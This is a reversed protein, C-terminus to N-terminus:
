RPRNLIPVSQTTCLIQSGARALFPRSCSSLSDHSGFPLDLYVPWFGDAVAPSESTVRLLRCILGGKGFNARRLHLTAGAAAAAAVAAQGRPWVVAPPGTSMNIFMVAYACSPPCAWHPPILLGLGQHAPCPLTPSLLPLEQVPPLPLPGGPQLPQQCQQCRLVDHAAARATGATSTTPRLPPPPNCCAPTPRFQNFRWCPGVLHM